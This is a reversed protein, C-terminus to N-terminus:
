GLRKKHLTDIQIVRGDQIILNVSGYRVSEVAERIDEVPLGSADPIELEAEPERQETRKKQESTGASSAM